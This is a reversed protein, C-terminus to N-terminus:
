NDQWHGSMGGGHAGHGRQHGHERQHGRAHRMADKGPGRNNMQNKFFLRVTEKQEPKLAAYVELWRARSADMQKQMELRPADMQKLVDRLDVGPQELMLLTKEHQQRFHDRTGNNNDQQAKEAAKWLAEQQEDLKLEGYLRSMAREFNIMHMRPAYNRGADRRMNKQASSDEISAKKATSEPSAALATGTIGLSAGIALGFALSLAASLRRPSFLNKM